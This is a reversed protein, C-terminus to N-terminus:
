LRFIERAKEVRDLYERAEEGPQDALRFVPGPYLQQEELVGLRVLRDTHARATRPSVRAEQALVNNTLWEDARQRFVLLLRVEHPSILDTAM